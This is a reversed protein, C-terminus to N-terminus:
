ASPRGTQCNEPQGERCTQCRECAVSPWVTVRDGLSVTTVDPAIQVVRGAFEHGLTLPMLPRMWDYGSTWEYVHIDSGCIGWPM